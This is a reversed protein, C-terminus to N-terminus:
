CRMTGARRRGGVAAPPDDAPATRWVPCSMCRPGGRGTGLELRRDAAGRHGGGRPPTPRGTASTPSSWGPAIALTNNGDDWQEREATVPDLGTDIVRLTEIGMARAAAPLFAEPGGVTVGGDGGDQVLYAELTDAVQPYMVVKDRDVMTCVTDLHMTARDQAIPVALVSHRPRRPSSGSPSRRSAPRAPASASAWPWCGPALVLVDGGELWAEEDASGGYLLETGTFRPHHTYIAATITSERRRATMALSTVAVGNDLWV